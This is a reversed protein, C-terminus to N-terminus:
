PCIYYEKLLLQSGTLISLYILFLSFKTPTRIPLLNDFIITSTAYFSKNMKNNTKDPLLQKVEEEFGPNLKRPDSLSLSEPHTWVQLMKACPWSLM